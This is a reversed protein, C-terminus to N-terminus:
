SPTLFLMPGVGVVELGADRVEQLTYPTGNRHQLEGAETKIVSSAHKQWSQYQVEGGSCRQDLKVKNTLDADPAAAFYVRAVPAKDCGHCRLPTGAGDVLPM